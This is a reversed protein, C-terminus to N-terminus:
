IDNHCMEEVMMRGCRTEKLKAKISTLHKKGKGNTKGKCTAECIDIISNLGQKNMVLTGEKNSGKGQEEMGLIGAILM